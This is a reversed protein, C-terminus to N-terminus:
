LGPNPPKDGSTAQLLEVMFGQLGQVRLRVTPEMNIVLM